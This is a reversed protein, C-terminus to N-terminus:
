PFVLTYFMQLNFCFFDLFTIMCKQDSSHPFHLLHILHLLLAVSALGISVALYEFGFLFAMQSCRCSAAHILVFINQMWIQVTWATLICHFVVSLSCETVWLTHLPMKKTWWSKLMWDLYLTAPLLLLQCPAGGCFCRGVLVAATWLTPWWAMSSLGTCLM